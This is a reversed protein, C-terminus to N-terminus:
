PDFPERGRASAQECPVVVRRRELSSDVSPSSGSYYLQGIAVSPQRARFSFEADVLCFRGHHTLVEVIALALMHVTGWNRLRLDVVSVEERTGGVAAPRRQRPRRIAAFRVASVSLSRTATRLAQYPLVIAIYTANCLEARHRCLCVVAHQLRSGRRYRVPAGRDGRSWITADRCKGRSRGRGHAFSSAVGDQSQHNGRLLSRTGRFYLALRRCPLRRDASSRTPDL